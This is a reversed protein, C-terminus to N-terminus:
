MKFGAERFGCVAPVKKLPPFWSRSFIGATASGSTGEELAIQEDVNVAGFHPRREAILQEHDEGAVTLSRLIPGADGQKHFGAFQVANIRL